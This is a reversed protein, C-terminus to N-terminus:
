CWHLMDHSALKGIAGLSGLAHEEAFVQGGGAPGEAVIDVMKQSLRM